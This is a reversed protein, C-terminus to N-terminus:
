ALPNFREGTLKFSSEPEGLEEMFVNLDPSNCAVLILRQLQNLDTLQGIQRILGEPIEGFRMALIEFLDERDQRLFVEDQELSM